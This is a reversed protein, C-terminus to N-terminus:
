YDQAVHIFWLARRYTIDVVSPLNDHTPFMEFPTM